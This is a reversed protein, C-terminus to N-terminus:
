TPTSIVVISGGTAVTATGAGTANAQVDIVHPDPTALLPDATEFVLSFPAPSNAATVEVEASFVINGDIMFDVTVLASGGSESVVGTYMLIAKRGGPTVPIPAALLSILNVGLVVPFSSNVQSQTQVDGLARASPYTEPSRGRLGAIKSM